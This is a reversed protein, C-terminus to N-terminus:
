RSCSAGSSDRGGTRQNGDCPCKPRRRSFPADHDTLHADWVIDNSPQVIFSYAGARQHGDRYSEHYNQTAIVLGLQFFLPLILAMCSQSTSGWRRPNRVLKPKMGYHARRPRPDTATQQESHVCPVDRLLCLACVSDFCCLSDPQDSM